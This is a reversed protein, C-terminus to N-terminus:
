PHFTRAPSLFGVEGERVVLVGIPSATRYCRPYRLPQYLENEVAKKDVREIFLQDKRRLRNSRTGEGCEM